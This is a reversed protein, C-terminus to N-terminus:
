QQLARQTKKTKKQQWIDIAIASPLSNTSMDPGLSVIM